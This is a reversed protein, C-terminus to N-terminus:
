GALARRIAEVVGEYNDDLTQNRFRLMRFGQSELWATQRVDYERAAEDLHQPGDLEVVLQRTFCVFDVIYKGIAAQRRFKEGLKDSRLFHWHLREAATLENRLRQAFERQEQNRYM